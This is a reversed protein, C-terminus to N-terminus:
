KKLPIIWYPFIRINIGLVPENMNWLCGESLGLVQSSTFLDKLKGEGPEYKRNTYKGEPKVKGDICGM